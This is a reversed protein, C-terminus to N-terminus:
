SDGSRTYPDPAPASPFLPMDKAEARRQREEREWAWAAEIEGDPFEKLVSYSLALATDGNRLWWDSGIVCLRKRRADFCVRLM